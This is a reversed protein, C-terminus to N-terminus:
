RAPVRQAARTAVDAFFREVARRDDSEVREDPVGFRRWGRGPLAEVGELSRRGNRLVRSTVRYRRRRELREGPPWTGEWVGDLGDGSGVVRKWDICRVRGLRNRLDSCSQYREGSHRRIGKRVVTRLENPVSPDWREYGSDPLARMTGAVRREATPASIDAYPFPGNLMEYLTLGAGFVDGTVGMEGDDPGGEPPMYLLTGHIALVRGRGDMEAASGFDAVYAHDRDRNLL